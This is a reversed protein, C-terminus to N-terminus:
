LLQAADLVLYGLFTVVFLVLLSLSVVLVSWQEVARETEDTALVYIEQVEVHAPQVPIRADIVASPDRETETPAPAPLVEASRDLVGTAHNAM